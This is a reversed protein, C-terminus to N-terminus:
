SMRHGYEQQLDEKLMDYLRVLMPLRKFLGFADGRQFDVVKKEMGRLRVLGHQHMFECPTESLDIVTAKPFKPHENTVIYLEMLPSEQLTRASAWKAFDAVFVLAFSDDLYTSQRLAIRNQEIFIRYEDIAGILIKPINHRLAELGYGSWLWSGTTEGRQRYPREITALGATLLFDIAESLLRPSAEFFTVHEPPFQRGSALLEVVEQKSPSLTEPIVNAVHEFLPAAIARAIQSLNNRNHRVLEGRFRPVALSAWAPLYVHAAYNLDEVRLQDSSTIGLARPLDDAFWFLYETCLQRGCLRFQRDELMRDLYHFVFQDAEEKAGKLFSRARWCYQITKPKQGQAQFSMSVLHPGPSAPQPSGPAPQEAHPQAPLASILVRPDDPGITYVQFSVNSPSVPGVRVGLKWVGPFFREKAAPFNSDLLVNTRDIFDQFFLRDERSLDSLDMSTELDRLRPYDAIRNNYDQVMDKWRQLYGTENSVADVRPDFKIRFTKQGAPLEPLPMSPSLRRFYAKRNRVDVCILLFPLSIRGSYGVLTLPCSYSTENDPLKRIQVELKGLPRRESDTLELYGDSNPVKDLARLQAVVSNHDLLGKFVLITEEEEASNPPYPAPEANM